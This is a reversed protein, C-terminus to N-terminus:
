RRRAARARREQLLDRVTFAPAVLEPPDGGGPEAREIRGGELIRAALLGTAVAGAAILLGTRLRDVRKLEVEIVQDRSLRVRQNLTQLSSGAQRQAVPVLLLFGEGDAELVRGEVLRDVGPLVDALREAEVASLRARLEAGPSLTAPEVPAYGYCAPLAALLVTWSARRARPM